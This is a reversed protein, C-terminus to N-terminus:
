RASQLFNILAPIDNKEIIITDIGGGRHHRIILDGRDMYVETDKSGYGDDGIKLKRAENLTKDVEEKIIQQLESKKM